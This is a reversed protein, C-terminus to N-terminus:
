GYGPRIIGCSIASRSNAAPKGPALLWGSQMPWPQRWRNEVFVHAGARMAAVAYDAHTDSYTSIVVLDPKSTDLAQAYDTFVPYGALDPHTVRGSRNVLGVIEADAHKHHALAHSLGMNGLGVILVRIM